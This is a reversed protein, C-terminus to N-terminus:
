RTWSAWAFAIVMAVIARNLARSQERMHRAIAEDLPSVPPKSEWVVRDGHEVKTIM